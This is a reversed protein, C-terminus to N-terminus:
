PTVISLIKVETGDKSLFRHKLTTDFYISDGEELVVHEDDLLIEATGKLIFLFNEGENSYTTFESITNNLTIIFPEM